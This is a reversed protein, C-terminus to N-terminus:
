MQIAYEPSLDLLYEDALMDFLTEPVVRLPVVEDFYLLCEQFRPMLSTYFANHMYSVNYPNLHSEIHVLGAKAYVEKHHKVFEMDVFKFAADEEATPPEVASKM